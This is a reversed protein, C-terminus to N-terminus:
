RGVYNIAKCTKGVLSLIAVADNTDLVGNQNVDGMFTFIPILRQPIKALLKQCFPTNQYEKTLCLVIHYDEMTYKGDLNVDGVCKREFTIEVGQQVAAVVTPPIPITKVPPTPFYTVAVRGVLPPLVILGGPGRTPTYQGTGVANATGTITFVAFSADTPIDWFGQQKFQKLLTGWRMTIQTIGGTAYVTPIGVYNIGDWFCEQKSMMRDYTGIVSPSTAIFYTLTISDGMSLRRGYQTVGFIFFTRLGAAVKGSTLVTAEAAKPDPIIVCVDFLKNVWPGYATVLGKLNPPVTSVLKLKLKALEAVGGLPIQVDALGNFTITCLTGQKGCNPSIYQYYLEKFKFIDKNVKFDEVVFYTQDFSLTISLLVQIAKLHITAILLLVLVRREM